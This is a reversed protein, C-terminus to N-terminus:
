PELTAALVAQKTNVISKKLLDKALKRVVPEVVWSLSNPIPRSLAVSEQELYVGEVGQEYRTLTYIRWLYGTADDRTADRQTPRESKDVEQIRTSRSVSYWRTPNVEVYQTEYEIQLIATVFLVRRIYNVTFRDKGDKQSILRAGIVTPAYWQSFHDYGRAVTLLETLSAKPIFLAGVWDHILAHPIAVSPQRNLQSILVTGRQLAQTQEPTQDLLLFRADDAPPPQMSRDIIALYSEWAQITEPKLEVAASLAANALLLLTLSFARIAATLQSRSM